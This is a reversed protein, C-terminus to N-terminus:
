AACGHKTLDTCLDFHCDCREEAPLWRSDPCETPTKLWSSNAYSCGTFTMVAWQNCQVMRNPNGCSGGCTSGWGAKGVLLQEAQGVYNYLGHCWFDEYNKMSGNYNAGDPISPCPMKFVESAHRPINGHRMSFHGDGVYDGETVMTLVSGALCNAPDNCSFVKNVASSTFMGMHPAVLIVALDKAGLDRGNCKWNTVVDVSHLLAMAGGHSHGSIVLKEVESGPACCQEEFAKLLHPRVSDYSLVLGKGASVGSGQPAYKFPMDQLLLNLIWDGASRTAQWSFMCVKGNRSGKVLEHQNSRFLAVETDAYDTDTFNEAATPAFYKMMAKVAPKEVFSMTNQLEGLRGVLKTGSWDRGCDPMLLEDDPDTFNIATTVAAAGTLGLKALRKTEATAECICTRGRCINNLSWAVLTGKGVCKPGRVTCKVGELGKGPPTEVSPGCLQPEGEPEGDADGEGAHRHGHVHVFGHHADTQLLAM